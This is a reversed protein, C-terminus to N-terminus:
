VLTGFKSTNDKLFFKNNEFQIMGHFRSVSIDSIRIDSDHGRGLRINTKNNMSIIYVGIRQNRDRIVSELMVYPVEPKSIEMLDLKAGEYTISAPFEQKCLECELSKWFYSM